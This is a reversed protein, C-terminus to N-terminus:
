HLQEHPAGNIHQEILDITVRRNSHFHEISDGARYPRSSAAGQVRIRQAAVGQQQLFDAVAQARLMSLKLNHEAGGAADTHGTILLDLPLASVMPVARQLQDQYAPTLRASDTEFQNNRNLLPLLNQQLDTLKLPNAITRQCQGGANVADLRNELEALFYQQVELSNAADQELGGKLERMIRQQRTKAQAVSAPFCLEAGELILLDLQHKSIILEFRLGHEPGMAEENALDLLSLLLSNHEAFGGTGQQPWSACGQALLALLVLIIRM